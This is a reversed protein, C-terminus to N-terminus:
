SREISVPVSGGVSQSDPEPATESDTLSEAFRAEIYDSPDYESLENLAEYVKERIESEITLTDSQNKLATALRTPIVLMRARFRALIDCWVQEVVEAPLLKARIVEVELETKDARAKEFRTKEIELESLKFGSEDAQGYIIPLARKPDYCITNGEASVPDLDALRKKITRYSSGTLQQLQNISVTFLDDKINAM